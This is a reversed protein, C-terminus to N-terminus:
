SINFIVLVTCGAGPSSEIIAQGNYLEARSIINALGIGQRKAKIDFGQGNDEIRLTLNYQNQTVWVHIVTASAYKFINNMQEQIIRYLTVKLGESLINEDLGTIELKVRERQVFPIKDIMGEISEKLSIEQLSPPTLSHSLRRIEDICYSVSEKSKAIIEAKAPDETRLLNLLLQVSALVQNINDHLEKGIQERQREQGELTAKMINKQAMLRLDKIEQELHTRHTCDNLSILFCPVSDYDMKAASVEIILLQGNKKVHTVIYKAAKESQLAEQVKDQLAARDAPLRLERIDLHLFEDEDYGYLDLAAENVKIIRLDKQTCILQGLASKQFILRYNTESKRLENEVGAQPHNEGSSKAKRKDVGKNTMDKTSLNIRHAQTEQNSARM